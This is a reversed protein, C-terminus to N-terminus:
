GEYTLSVNRVFQRLRAAALGGTDTSCDQEEGFFIEAGNASQWQGQFTTIRGNGFDQLQGAGSRTEAAYAFPPFGTKSILVRVEHDGESIQVGECNPGTLHEIRAAATFHEKSGTALTYMAPIEPYNACSMVDRQIRKPDM